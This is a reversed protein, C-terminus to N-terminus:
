RHTQQKRRRRDWWVLFGVLVIGLAIDRLLWAHFGLVAHLALFVPVLVLGGGYRWLFRKLEDTNMTGWTRFRSPSVATRAGRAHVRTGLGGPDPIPERTDTPPRDRRERLHLGDACVSGLERAGGLARCTGVRRGIRGWLLWATRPRNGQATM